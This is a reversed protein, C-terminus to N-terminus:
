ASPHNSARRNESAVDYRRIGPWHASWPRRATDGGRRLGDSRRSGGRALRRPSRAHSGGRRRLSTGRLDIDRVNATRGVLLAVLLPQFFFRFNSAMRLRIASRVSPSQPSKGIGGSARVIGIPEEGWVVPLAARAHRGRDFHGQAIQRCEVQGHEVIERGVGVWTASTECAPLAVCTNCPSALSSDSGGASTSISLGSTSTRSGAWPQAQAVTVKAPTIPLRTPNFPLPRAAEVPATTSVRTRGGITGSAARWSGHRRCAALWRFTQFPGGISQPVRMARATPCGTQALLSLAPQGGRFMIAPVEALRDASSTQIRRWVMAHQMRRGVGAGAPDTSLNSNAGLCAPKPWM